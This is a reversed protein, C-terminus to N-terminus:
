DPHTVGPDTSLVTVSPCGPRVLRLGQLRSAKGGNVWWRAVGHHRM